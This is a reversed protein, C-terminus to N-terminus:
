AVIKQCRGITSSYIDLHGFKMLVAEESEGHLRKCLLFSAEHFHVSDNKGHKILIATVKGNRMAAEIMGFICPSRRRGYGGFM